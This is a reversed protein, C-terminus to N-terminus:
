VYIMWLFLLTNKKGKVKIHTVVKYHAPIGNLKDKLNDVTM